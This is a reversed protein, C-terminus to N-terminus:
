KLLLFVETKNQLRGDLTKFSLKYVYNGPPADKGGVTGDWGNAELDDTYYITEGWKNLVWFELSEINVFRPFFYDNLGDGNPTFANPMVLFYDFVRIRKKVESICGYIDTVQLTIEYEGEKLYSHKPNEEFSFNGDGFDWYYGSIQGFSRNWFQIEFNVLYSNYQDFAISEFGSDAIVESNKIDFSETITCGYGDTIRVTYLGPLTTKMIQGNQSVNGGSWAISYPAVGGSISIQIEEEIFRPECEVYTRQFAVISLPDPRKVEFSGNIECGSADIVNVSYQGAPINVLNSTTQGNNWQFSYPPRGGSIGLIISGSQPNECELADTVVPEMLLLAPEVINFESRIECDTEDKILVSYTGAGLNFLEDRDDGNSWAITPQGVGGEFNLKIFGDREGFCSIQRVEPRIRFLPADEIIITQSKVCGAQDSVQVTYSGPGLNNYEEQTSNNNWIIQFPPVGGQINLKIYGDNADYCSIDTKEYDIVLPLDPESLEFPGLSVMCGNRDEIDVEYVGAPVGNLNQNDSNFLSGNRTWTFKYPLNSVGGSVNITIQGTSEGSCFINQTSILEGSLPLPESINFSEQLDCGFEDQILVTYEGPALNELDQQESIFGNPGNWQFKFNGSGGQPNLQIFGDNAGHCSIQFGSYDSISSNLTITPNVTITYVKPNGSCSNATSTSAIVFYEVLIPSNTPNTITQVPISNGTGSLTVGEAGNPNATWSFQADIVDSSIIIEESSDGTCLTQAPLSFNISPSPQVTVELEFPSGVCNGLYPIVTYTVSLPINTENSLTQTISSQKEVSSTNGIIGATENSTWTFSTGALFGEPVFAFEQDSCADLLTDEYVPEPNVRIIYQAPAFNCEGINASTIEATFVVDIPVGTTNILTFPPIQNEGETADLGIIGTNNVTWSVTEGAPDSTMNVLSSTEGSCIEQNPLDFVVIPAPIVTVTVQDTEECGTVTNRARLTYITTQSPKVIPTLTNGDTIQSFPTSTWQYTYAGDPSVTGSLTTSEGNCIEVDQGSEVQPLPNVMFTRSQTTTGCSSTVELTVIKEGPTEFLIEGPILESSTNPVGGVFTWKYTLDSDDCATISAVPSIISPGCANQINGLGVKPPASINISQSSIASGCSSFTTLSITYTGPNIFQFEPHISNEDSGEIFAWDSVTGCVGPNYTVTWLFRENECLGLINTTNTAKVIGPGCVELNDLDFSSVPKPIVCVTEEKEEIGCRNGTRLKITYTGPETFIPNIVPSGSVWTNPFDPNNITGFNGGILEWGTNPTIEWVYKPDLCQGNTSVEIGVETINSVTIPQDICVPDKPLQMKPEPNESVYIPVVSAASSACPNEARITVSFSNIFGPSENRCSGKQFIHTVTAPAPHEFIQPNEPDDSFTVIYRTGEPNNETGTIPFTLASGVCVNTNGPNGLGVAPNAGVFVGYEKSIACGNASTVTYKLAYIGIEYTHSLSTWNVGSFVPSGDGWNIEYLVNNENNAPANFFTFESTKDDCVIFYPLGDFTTNGADSTVNMSPIEKITIVKEIRDKREIVKEGDNLTSTAILSVNFTREGGGIATSFVHEPNKQTSTSGDGFNWEFTLNGGTSTNTFKIPQDACFGNPEFTFDAVPEENQNQQFSIIPNFLIFSQMKLSFASFLLAILVIFLYSRKGM